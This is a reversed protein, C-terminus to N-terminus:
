DKDCSREESASSASKVTEFEAKTKKPAEAAELVTGAEADAPSPDAGNGIKLGTGPAVVGIVGTSDGEADPDAASPAIVGVFPLSTDSGCFAGTMGSSIGFGNSGVMDIGSDSDLEENCDM